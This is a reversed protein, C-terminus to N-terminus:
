AGINKLGGKSATTEGSGVSPEGAYESHTHPYTQVAWGRIIKMM